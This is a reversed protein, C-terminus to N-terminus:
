LSGGAEAPPAVRGLVGSLWRMGKGDVHHYAAINAMFRTARSPETPAHAFALSEGHELARALKHPPMRHQNHLFLPQVLQPPLYKKFLPALPCPRAELTGNFPCVENCISRRANRVNQWFPSREGCFAWEVDFRFGPLCRVRAAGERARAAACTSVLHDNNYLAGSYPRHWYRTEPPCEGFASFKRGARAAEVAAGYVPYCAITLARCRGVFAADAFRAVLARNFM